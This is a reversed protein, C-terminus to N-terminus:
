FGCYPVKFLECTKTVSRMISSLTVDWIKTLGVWGVGKLYSAIEDNKLITSNLSNAYRDFPRLGIGNRIFIKQVNHYVQLRSLIKSINQYQNNSLSESRVLYNYFRRNSYDISKAKLGAAISFLYDNAVISEEFRIQNDEIFQRRYIKGWPETYCFRLWRNLQNKNRTLRKITNERDKLWDSSHNNGYQKCNVMSYVIDANTQILTIWIDYADTTFYDDSDAFILYKGKAHLLGINRSAGAGKNTKSFIFTVNKYKDEINKINNVVEISSGDDIVITQVDDRKPVSDLLNILSDILNYHPIIITFKIM